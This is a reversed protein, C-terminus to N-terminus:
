ALVFGIESGVHAFMHALCAAELGHRWFLWGFLLGPIANVCTVYLVVPSTVEVGMGTVAPMHALGFIAASLTAALVFCIRQPRGQGRQLVRWSAWALLTMLGWRMLVEETLGGYLIRAMLPLRDGSAVDQLSAPAAREAWAIFLASLGGAAAAQRLQARWISASPQNALMASIAPACLGIRPGLVVGVWVALTLLLASPLVAAVILFPVPLPSIGLLKPWTAQILTVVGWMGAAWLTLGLLMPNRRM